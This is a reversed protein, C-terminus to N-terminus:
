PREVVQASVQKGSLEGVMRQAQPQNNFAGVQVRFLGANADHWVFNQIGQKKLTAALNHASKATQYSGAIVKYPRGAVARVPAATQRVQVVPKQQVPTQVVPRQPQRAAQQAMQIQRNAATQNVAPKPAPKVVPKVVPAAATVPKPAPKAAIVPKPAPKSVVPQAQQQQIQRAKKIVDTMSETQAPQAAPKAAVPKVEVKKVVPAPQTPAPKEPAPNVAVATVPAGEAADPGQPTEMQAAAQAEASVTPTEATANASAAANQKELESQIQDIMKDNQQVQDNAPMEQSTQPQLSENKPNRALMKKGLNFSIFFSILVFVIIAGFVGATKGWSFEHEREKLMDGLGDNFDLDEKPKDDHEM